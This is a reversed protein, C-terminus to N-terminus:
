VSASTKGPTDGAELNKVLEDSDEVDMKNLEKTVKVIKELQSASMCTSLKEVDTIDLLLNGKEDCMTMTVIKARFDKFNRKFVTEGKENEEDVLIMKEFSDRERGTMERVFVFDGKGLEVKQISLLSKTLLREKNLLGM